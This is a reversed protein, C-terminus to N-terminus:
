AGKRAEEHTKASTRRSQPAVSAAAKVAALDAVTRLGMYKETVRIDSHGALKQLSRIDAGGRGLNTLFTHRLAHFDLRGSPTDREIGAAALDRVLVAFQKDALGPFARADPLKTALWPALRATYSESLPLTLERGGKVRGTVCGAGMDFDGARLQRVTDARFGTECAVLEYILAREEGSSRAHRDERRVSEILRTVEDPTMARRRRKIQQAPTAHVDLIALPDITARGFRVMWRCFARAAKVHATTTTRGWRLRDCPNTQSRARMDEVASRVRSADIDSYVEARAETFVRAAYHRQQDAYKATRGKAVLEGRWADLHATLPLGALLRSEPVLGWDILKQRRDPDLRENCWRALDDPLPQGAILYDRLDEVNKGLRATLKPCAFGPMYREIKAHDLFRFACASKRNRGKIVHGMRNM